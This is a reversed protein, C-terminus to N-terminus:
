SPTRSRSCSRLEINLTKPEFNCTRSEKIGQARQSVSVNLPAGDQPADAGVHQEADPRWTAKV